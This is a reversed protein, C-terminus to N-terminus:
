EASRQLKHELKLALDRAAAALTPVHDYVALGLRDAEQVGMDAPLWGALPL